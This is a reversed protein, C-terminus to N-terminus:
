KLHLDDILHRRQSDALVLLGNRYPADASQMESPGCVLRSSVAPRNGAVVLLTTDPEEPAYAM